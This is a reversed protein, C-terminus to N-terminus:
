SCWFSTCKKMYGSRMVRNNCSLLKMNHLFPNTCTKRHLRPQNKSKQAEWSWSRYGAMWGMMLFITSTVVRNMSWHMSRLTLTTVTRSYRVYCWMLYGRTEIGYCMAINNAALFLSLIPYITVPRVIRGQIHQRIQQILDTLDVYGDWQFHPFSFDSKCHEIKLICNIHVNM